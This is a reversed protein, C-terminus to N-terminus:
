ILDTIVRCVHYRSRRALQHLLVLQRILDVIGIKYLIIRQDCIRDIINSLIDIKRTKDYLSVQLHHETNYYCLGTEYSNRLTQTFVVVIVLFRITVYKKIKYQKKNM